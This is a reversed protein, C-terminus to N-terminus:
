APQTRCVQRRARRKILRFVWYGLGLAGAQLGIIWLWIVWLRGFHFLVPLREDLNEIRPPNQWYLRYVVYCLLVVVALALVVALVIIVIQFMWRLLKSM